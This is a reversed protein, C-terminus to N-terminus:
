ASEIRKGSIVEGLGLGFRQRSATLGRATDAAVMADAVVDAASGSPFEGIMEAGCGRSLGPGPDADEYYRTVIYRTVPKVRYQITSM